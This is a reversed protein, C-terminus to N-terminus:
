IYFDELDLEYVQDGNDKEESEDEQKKIDLAKNIYNAVVHDYDKCKYCQVRSNLKLVKNLVRRGKDKKFSQAGNLNPKYLLVNLL